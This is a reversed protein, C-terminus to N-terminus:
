ASATIKDPFLSALENKFPMLKEEKYGGKEMATVLAQMCAFDRVQRNYLDLGMKIIQGNDQTSKSTILFECIQFDEGEKAGPPFRSLYKEADTALDHEVLISIIAKTFKTFESCSVAINDFLSLAKEPDKQLLHHKGAVYMGAGIYNTLVQPREDLTTYIEYYMQMDEFNETRIALRVIQSLRDPNAPFYKALKRVVEYADNYKGDRLFIEYLGVLCKYHINVFELGKNYSDTAQNVHNELYEAQGIYFLALAPKSHLEIATRLLSIAESYNGQAILEKGAEVRKMYESPRIKQYITSILNEQISQITYPKIIFSDVDEEAAKAVATQSINSTVLVLCLDKNDPNKNRIMNFLDFGSGGSIFYDSLVVGIKKTNIIQQAESLHGTTHTKEKNGGLEFITKLLRNRSSPNKDVILVEYEELFKKFVAKKDITSM